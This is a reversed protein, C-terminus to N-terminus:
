RRAGFANFYGDLAWWVEEPANAMVEDVGRQAILEAFANLTFRLHQERESQILSQYKVVDTSVADTHM